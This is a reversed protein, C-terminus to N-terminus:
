AHASVRINVNPTPLTSVPKPKHVTGLVTEAREYLDRYKQPAAKIGELPKRGLHASIAANEVVATMFAKPLATVDPAHAVIDYEIGQVVWQEGEQWAVARINIIQEAM